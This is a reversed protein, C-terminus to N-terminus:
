YELTDNSIGNTFSDLNIICSTFEKSFRALDGHLIRSWLAISPLLHQICYAMFDVNYYKNKQSTAENDTQIKKLPELKKGWYKVIDTGEGKLM